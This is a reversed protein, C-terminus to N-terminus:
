CIHTGPINGPPYFRGTRIASLRVVKAHRNDLFRPAEVKQFGLPMDLGTIPNSKGKVIKYLSTTMKLINNEVFGINVYLYIFLIFYYQWLSHSNPM